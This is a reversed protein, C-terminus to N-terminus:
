LSTSCFYIIGCIAALGLPIALGTLLCCCNKVPSQFQFRWDNDYRVIYREPQYGKTVIDDFGLTYYRDLIGGPTLFPEGDMKWKLEKLTSATGHSPSSTEKLYEKYSDHFLSENTPHTEFSFYFLDNTFLSKGGAVTHYAPRPM